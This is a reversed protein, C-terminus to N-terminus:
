SAQTLFILLIRRDAELRQLMEEAARLIHCVAERQVMEDTQQQESPHHYYVLPSHIHTGHLPHRFFSGGLLIALM